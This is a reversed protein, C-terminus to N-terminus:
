ERVQILIDRWEIELMQGFKSVLIVLGMKIAAMDYAIYSFTESGHGFYFNKWYRFKQLQVHFVIIFCSLRYANGDPLLTIKAAIFGVTFYVIVKDPEHIIFAGQTPTTFPLAFCITSRFILLYMVLLLFDFPM